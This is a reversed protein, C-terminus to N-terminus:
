IPSTRNARLLGRLTGYWHAAHRLRRLAQHRAAGWLLACLTANVLLKWGCRWATDSAGRLTVLGEAYGACYRALYGETMREKLVVHEVGMSPCWVTDGGAERVRQLLEADEGAVLASGHGLAPDFRLGQLADRRFALNATFMPRDTPGEDSGHDLGCFGTALMPFAEV